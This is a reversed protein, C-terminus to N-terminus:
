HKVVPTEKKYMHIGALAINIALIGLTAAMALWDTHAITAALVLAILSSYFFAIAARTRLSTIPRSVLDFGSLTYLIYGTVTVAYAIWALSTNGMVVWVLTPVLPVVLLVGFYESLINGYLIAREVESHRELRAINGAVVAYYISSYFTATVIVFLLVGLVTSNKGKNAVIALMALSVAFLISTFDISAQSEGLLLLPDPTPRDQRQDANPRLVQPASSTMILRDESPGLFNRETRTVVFGLKKYLHLAARNTEEVSLLITSAGGAALSSSVASTLAAGLGHARWKAEVAVSLVWGEASAPSLAGVAYGVVLSGIAAVQLLPPQLELQQYFFDTPYSRTDGFVARDLAAITEIDARTAPRLLALRLDYDSPNTM